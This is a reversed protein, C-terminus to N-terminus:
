RGTPDPPPVAPEPEEVETRVLTGRTPDATDPRVTFGNPWVRRKRPDSDDLHLVHAGAVGEDRNGSTFTADNFRAAGHFTALHFEVAGQFTVEPLRADSQFIAKSFRASRQFTAGNFWAARQFTARSFGADRQFTAKSFWAAGQFAAGNFWAADQFAAGNFWADCQFAAGDFEADRQFTAGHFRVFGQFTAGDFRAQMVSVQKFDVDVLAAGILDLSIGPWFARRPSPRRRQAAASSMGPPLRLHAALIRQVAQRVQLEQAPDQEPVPHPAQDRDDAPPAAEKVQEAGPEDRAPLTYPMRLYACFVDVVTQRHEPNDQALRELSYLGGLRVPAKEHGLQEVAKTYLETIRRERTDVEDLRQRRYALLLYAAGGTGLAITAGTKVADARMAARDKGAPAQNAQALLWLVAALGVALTVLVAAAFTLDVRRRAAAGPPPAPPPRRASWWALGARRLRGVIVGVVRGYDQLWGM